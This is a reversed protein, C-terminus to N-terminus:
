VDKILEVAIKIFLYVLASICLALYIFVSLSLCSINVRTAETDQSSFHYTCYVTCDLLSFCTSCLCIDLAAESSVRSSAIFPSAQNVQEPGRLRRISLRIRKQIKGTSKKLKLLDVEIVQSALWSGAIITFWRDIDILLAQTTTPSQM